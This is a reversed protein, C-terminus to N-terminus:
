EHQFTFYLFHFLRQKLHSTYGFSKKSVLFISKSVEKYIHWMKRLQFSPIGRRMQNLMLFTPQKWQRICYNRWELFNGNAVQLATEKMPEYFYGFLKKSSIKHVHKSHPIGKACQCSTHVSVNISLKSSILQTKGLQKWHIWSIWHCFYKDNFSNSGAVEQIHSWPAIVAGALCM